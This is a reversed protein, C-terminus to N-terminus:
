IKGQLQPKITENIEQVTMDGIDNKSLYVTHINFLYKLRDSLDKACARGADDNDTMIVINSVGTKQILFEQSDSIKSGFIGVANYIDSEWLRVVDGQGEVLIITETSKIHEMAKGYNYLFNSKNFGKLNIWKRSDNCITRGTCGIMYKDHEDYVPFVVRNYMQSKPNNCLGIDFVDLVTDSFGRDLYYQAPFILHKRVMDRTIRSDKSKKTKKSELKLLKDMANPQYNGIMSADVQVDSCFKKCFKIVETFKVEKNYKKELLCWVLSLVDKGPKDNHCHKTNCFWKGYHEENYEDVNINFATPNDGEHIPCSAIILNNSEYYEHIDFFEFIDFIKKM